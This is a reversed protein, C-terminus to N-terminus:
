REDPMIIKASINAYNELLYLLGGGDILEIPKDKAFNFADTGYGSTSVLIGKSAGENLMTGYLDRVASVGVTNRYRKAQIVVKGGLIPRTDFAVVDVGGDRSQQTQRTELGMQSFLNGVLNEFEFPNLDMLNPRADLEALVNSGEVFRGDVMNFEVIPKVPVCEDPQPSVQAGLNRLCARKDIRRLDLEEFKEKTVRVSVLYPRMDRGTTLDVTQVFGSFTAVALHNGQDAEFVEHLTRLAVAAVIDQYLNKIEAQKRPKIEIIDRSKVYKHENETPVISINPLEYDVVLEKSEPTYALRFEQPFGDPYLSRELVMTNYTIVAELDGSQYATELADVEANRQTKKAMFAQQDADYATRLKELQSLRQQEAAKWQALAVQYQQEAAQTQEQQHKLVRQDKGHEGHFLKELFGVPKSPTIRSVFSERQPMPTQKTMQTPPTFPKFQENIRLSGFAITDDVELTQQLVSQLEDNRAALAENADEAEQQRDELYQQKAEKEAQKRDKELERQLQRHYREAARTARQQERVRRNYDAVASRQARASERAISNMLGVFGSRRGM